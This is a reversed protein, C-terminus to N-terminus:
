PAGLRALWGALHKLAGPAGRVLAVSRSLTGPDFRGAALTVFSSESLSVVVDVGDDETVVPGWRDDVVRARDLDVCWERRDVLLGYRGGVARASAANAALLAPLLTGLVHSSAHQQLAAGIGTRDHLRAM